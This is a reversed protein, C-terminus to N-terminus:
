DDQSWNKVSFSLSKEQM